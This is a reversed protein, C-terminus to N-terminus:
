DKGMIPVPNWECVLIKKRGSNNAHFCNNMKKQMYMTKIRSFNYFNVMQM